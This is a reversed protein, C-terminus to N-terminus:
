RSNLFITIIGVFILLIQTYLITGKSNCPPYIGYGSECICIQVDYGGTKQKYCGSSIKGENSSVRACMHSRNAIIGNDIYTYTVCAQNSSRMCLVSARHNTWLYDMDPLTSDNTIVIPSICPIHEGARTDDIYDDCTGDYTTVNNYNPGFWTFEYCYSWSPNLTPYDIDDDASSFGVFIKGTEHLM